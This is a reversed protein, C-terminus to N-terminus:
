AALDIVADTPKTALTQWGNVKRMTIQGSALLAWFLMAATEASPLVTQTKIRRKFEEHLREVANSTRASRWQDSPLRTFTFLRDGAEELSDAVARCKLRWKRLFAKRREEVEKPTAAYIMDTYDASIEEHLEDPAHALLNRHKHVTCRQTPVEPWLAALAKELGAAGDVILFEPTKLGRAILDDLLTRWAAESEGGMNKVALLVKQGDRRVGLVVLLSISTAKRDLRVRVVTGDLILRVVDEKDLPRKSWAEWDTKVKRWIRSVADKGIAGKFLAALARRVRRTNTGALYTGAILAEVQKTMRAYRPLAKSKWEATGGDSTGIRARPVAIEVTGFSGTLRRERHGHRYGAGPAVDGTGAAPPCGAEGDGCRHRREYRGRGLAAALEEEILEEIFVRIRDRIGAEIPDSWAEGLFLTTEDVPTTSDTTM